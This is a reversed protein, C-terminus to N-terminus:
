RGALRWQFPTKSVHRYHGVMSHPSPLTTIKLPDPDINSPFGVNKHNKLPDPGGTEGEPDAWSSVLDYKISYTLIVNGFAGQYRTFNLRVQRTLKDPDVVVTQQEPQVGFLGHPQDNYRPLVYLHIFLMDNFQDVIPGLRLFVQRRTESLALKLGTQGVM